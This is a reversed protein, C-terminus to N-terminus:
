YLDELAIDLDRFKFEFNEKEIKASSVKNGGVIMQAMEGFILKLVSSPVNPLFCPKKLTKALAKTLEENTCPNPSVANYVGDLQKEISHIIIQCLDNVHIWSMWQKGSGLASGIGSKIPFAMKGLAGGLPDLVVGIRLQTTKIGITRFESTSKEWSKVVEALFDEGAESEEDMLLEGTDMGYYGVASAAVISKVNHKKRQLERLLLKSSLVRSDVIVKKREATWRGQAVNAGALLVIADVGVLAGDEVFGEDVNWNFIDSPMNSTGRSLHRVLDGRKKLRQTLRTGILGSGGVILIRM